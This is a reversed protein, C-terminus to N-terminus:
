QCCRQPWVGTSQDASGRGISAPKCCYGTLFGDLGRSFWPEITSPLCPSRVGQRPYNGNSTIEPSELWNEVEDASAFYQVWLLERGFRSQSKGVRFGHHWCMNPLIIILETVLLTQAFSLVSLKALTATRHGILALTYLWPNFVSKVRIFELWHHKSIRM